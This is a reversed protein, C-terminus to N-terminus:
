IEESFFYNTKKNKLFGQFILLTRIQLSFRVKPINSVEFLGKGIIGKSIKKNNKELKKTSKKWKM